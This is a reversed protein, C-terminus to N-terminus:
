KVNTPEQSKEKVKLNAGLVWKGQKEPGVIDYVSPYM